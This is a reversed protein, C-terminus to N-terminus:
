NTEYNKLIKMFLQANKLMAYNNNFFAYVKKPKKEVIKKAINELEKKSYDYAYWVDKGHFRIYIYDNTKIIVEGFDPADISVWTIKKNESWKYYEEKFWKENRVELAFREKLNTYEIFKEIKDISKPTFNPPLQFLYFDIYNDLTKFLNIFREYFSYSKESLRFRHTIIRSVKIIWRLSKGKNAWTKIQNPFPFRYFSVNLEVANLKSNKLYWDFTGELNWDYCWGSTGVYIEM